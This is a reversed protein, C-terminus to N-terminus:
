KLEILGEGNKALNARNKILEGGILMAM